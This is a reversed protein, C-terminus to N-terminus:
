RQFETRPFKPSEQQCPSESKEWRCVDRRGRSRWMIEEFCVRIRHNMFWATKQTVNIYEALLTSSIGKKSSAILYIAIFWKRLPIKSGEFITGIRVNFNKGTTKCRYLGDGRNYVVSAPDYPSVPGSPWRLQELYRICSTETPFAELLDFISRFETLKM